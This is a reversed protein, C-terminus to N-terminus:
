RRKCLEQLHEGHASVINDYRKYKYMWFETEIEELEALVNSDVPQRMLIYAKTRVWELVSVVLGWQASKVDEEDTM